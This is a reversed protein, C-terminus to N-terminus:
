NLRLLFCLKDGLVFSFELRLDDYNNQQSLVVCVSSHVTRVNSVLIEFAEHHLTMRYVFTLSQACRKM